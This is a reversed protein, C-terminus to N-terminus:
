YIHQTSQYNLTPLLKNGIKKKLFKYNLLLAVNQDIIYLMGYYTKYYKEM